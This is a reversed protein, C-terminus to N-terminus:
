DNAYSRPISLSFMATASTLMAAIIGGDITATLAGYVSVGILGTASALSMVKSYLAFIDRNQRVIKTQEIAEMNSASQAPAPCPNNRYSKKAM